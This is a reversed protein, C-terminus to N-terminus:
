QEIPPFILRQGSQLQYISTLGNIKAVQLYYKPDGYVDKCMIPLTDGLRTTKMHTLDPSSNTKVKDIHDSSLFQEFACDLEARLPHGDPSFMKYTINLKKLRCTFERDGEVFLGGWKLKLYNSGHITGYYHYCVKKFDAIKVLVDDCNDIVGTSDLTFKFSVTQMQRISAGPISIGSGNVETENAGESSIASEGKGNTTIPHDHTITDPNIQLEIEKAKTNPNTCEEDTFAEIKLKITSTASEIKDNLNM